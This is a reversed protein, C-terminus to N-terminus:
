FFMIVYEGWLRLLSGSATTGSSNFHDLQLLLSRFRLIYDAIFEGLAQLMLLINLREVGTSKKEDWQSRYRVSM